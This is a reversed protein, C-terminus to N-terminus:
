SLSDLELGKGGRANQERAIAQSQTRWYHYESRTLASRTTQFALDCLAKVVPAQRNDVVFAHLREVLRKDKTHRFHQNAPCIMRGNGPFDTRLLRKKFFVEWAKSIAQSTVDANSDHEKIAENHQLIVLPLFVSYAVFTNFVQFPGDILLQANDIEEASAEKSLTLVAKLGNLFAGHAGQYLALALVLEPHQLAKYRTESLMLYLRSAGPDDQLLQDRVLEEPYVKPEPGVNFQEYMNELSKRVVRQRSPWELGRVFSGLWSEFAEPPIYYSIGERITASKHRLDDPTIDFDNYLRIQRPTQEDYPPDGIYHSCGPIRPQESTPHTQKTWSPWDTHPEGRPEGFTM